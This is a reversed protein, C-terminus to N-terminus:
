AECELRVHLVSPKHGDYAVLILMGIIGDGAAHNFAAFQTLAQCFAIDFEATGVLADHIVRTGAEPIIGHSAKAIENIGVRLVLLQSAQPSTQQFVDTEVSDGFPVQAGNGSNGTLENRERGEENIREERM